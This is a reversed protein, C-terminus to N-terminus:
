VQLCSWLPWHLSLICCATGQQANESNRAAGLGRFLRTQRCFLERAPATAISTNVTTYKSKCAPGCFDIHHSHTAPHARSRTKGTERPEWGELIVLKGTFCGCTGEIIDSSFQLTITSQFFQRQPSSAVYLYLYAHRDTRIQTYVYIVYMQFSM